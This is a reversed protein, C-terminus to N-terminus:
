PAHDSPKARPDGTWWQRQQGLQYASPRGFAADGLDPRYPRVRVLLVGIAIAVVGAVFLGIADARSPADARLTQYTGNWAITLSGWVFVGGVFLAVLGLIRIFRTFARWHTTEYSM